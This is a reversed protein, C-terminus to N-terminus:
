PDSAPASSWSVPRSSHATSHGPAMDTGNMALDGAQNRLNQQPIWWLRATFPARGGEGSSGAGLRDGHRPEFPQSNEAFSVDDPPALSRFRPDSTGDFWVSEVGPQSSPRPGSLTDGLPDQAFLGGTGASWVM